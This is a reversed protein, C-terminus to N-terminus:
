VAVLGGVSSVIGLRGRGAARMMPLVALSLHVPGWLMTDVADHLHGLTVGEVGGVAITGAVHFAADVTGTREAAGRVLADVAGPDRVDCVQPEFVGPGAVTAAASELAAADRGCGVVRWGRGVLLTSVALGLGRSAGAVVATPHRTTPGGGGAAPETAPHRAAPETGPPRAAPETAPRRAAPETAHAVADGGHHPHTM